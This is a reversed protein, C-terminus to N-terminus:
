KENNMNLNQLMTNTGDRKLYNSLTSSNAKTNLQTDLYSKNIADNNNVPNALNILKNNNCNM